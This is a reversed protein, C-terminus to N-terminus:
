QRSLYKTSDNVGSINDFGWEGIALIVPRLAEGRKTLLYDIKSRKEKNIRKRLIGHEVLNELKASLINSAIKENSNRFENFSTKGLIISDRVLLLSWKDGLIELSCSISCKSRSDAKRIKPQM